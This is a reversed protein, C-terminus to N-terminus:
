AGREGVTQGWAKDQAQHADDTSITVVDNKEVSMCTDVVLEADRRLEAALESM